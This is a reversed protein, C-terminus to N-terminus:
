FAFYFSVKFVRRSHSQKLQSVKYEALHWQMIMMMLEDDDDDDDAISEAGM